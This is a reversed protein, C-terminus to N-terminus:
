DQVDVTATCTSVNGNNDTVTLTVTNNGIDNCDFSTQDLSLSQIGCADNSGNNIDSTTISGNGSADLVVTANQCLATPSTNDQVDVTATCTSVNGNNDTVTLTVTNNGIDNCDFSTQDLSLSQIGCADNSGNNIDSTTISGNGSADLVVTANQCLATPSTNDQVDVTATCTSVNGNNDTVTLTVTNNGIDNCDFSTQDLSLSQIGCADNSGNNIDSTTISGNGSADLVVTANQCLATPSTNDQVDVTATCTSVNGNNDTVTLTVTNNGINSCNFTNPSVSLSAIGFDDTSGGDINGATITVDGNSDLQAIYNSCIATPPNDVRFMAKYNAGSNNIYYTADALNDNNFDADSRTYVELIYDGSPLGNLVNINAGLSEWTEDTSTGSCFNSTGDDTMSLIETAIFSPPVNGTLYIRYDIFSNQTNHTGCEYTKIQAGNLILSNSSKFAGLNAGDFNQNATDVNLDFYTNGIGNVNLTVYSEYIGSQTFSLHTTFFFVVFCYFLFYYKKM